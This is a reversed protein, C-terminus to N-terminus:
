KWEASNTWAPCAPLNVWPGSEAKYVILNSWVIGICSPNGGCPTFYYAQKGEPRCSSLACPTPNANSGVMRIARATTNPFLCMSPAAYVDSSIFMSGLISIVLFQIISKM